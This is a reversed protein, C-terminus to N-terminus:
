RQADCFIATMFPGVPHVIASSGAREVKAKVRKTSGLVVAGYASDGIPKGRGQRFLADDKQYGVVAIVSFGFARLDVGHTPFFANVSDDEVRSAKPGILGDGVLPAIFDHARLQCALADDLSRSAAGVGGAVDARAMGFLAACAAVGVRKRYDFLRMTGILSARHATWSSAYLKRSDTYACCAYPGIRYDISEEPVPPVCQVRACADVRAVRDASM